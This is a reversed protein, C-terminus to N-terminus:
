PTRGSQTLALRLLKQLSKWESQPFYVNLNSKRINLVIQPTASEDPETSFALKIPLGVGLFRHLSPIYRNPYWPPMFEDKLTAFTTLSMYNFFTCWVLRSTYSFAILTVANNNAQVLLKVGRL